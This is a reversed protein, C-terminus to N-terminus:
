AVDDFRLLPRLECHDLCCRVGKSVDTAGQAIAPDGQIAASGCEALDTDADEGADPDDEDSDDHDDVKCDVLCCFPVVILM